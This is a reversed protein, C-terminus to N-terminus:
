LKIGFIKAFFGMKQNNKNISEPIAETEWGDKIVHLAGLCAAFEEDKKKENEKSRFLM